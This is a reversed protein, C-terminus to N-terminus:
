HQSQSRIVTRLNLLDSSNEIANSLTWHFSCHIGKDLVPRANCVISVYKSPLNVSPSTSLKAYIIPSLRSQPACYQLYSFLANLSDIVVLCSLWVRRKGGFRMDLFNLLHLLFAFSHAIDTM